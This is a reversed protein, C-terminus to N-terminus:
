MKGLADGAKPLLTTVQFMEGAGECDSATIIPAHLYQIGKGQFFQHTAFALSSRVRAVSSIIKTRARLHAHDRLYEMSHTKKGALPYTSHDCNGYMVASHKEAQSV